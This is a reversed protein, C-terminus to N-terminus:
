HSLFRLTGSGGSRLFYGICAFAAVVHSLIHFPM